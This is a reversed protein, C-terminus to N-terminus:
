QAGRPLKSSDGRSAFCAIPPDGPLLATLVYNARSFQAGMREIAEALEQGSKGKGEDVPKCVVSKMATAGRVLPAALLLLAIWNM